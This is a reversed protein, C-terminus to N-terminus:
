PITRYKMEFDATHGSVTTKINIQTVADEPKHEWTHVDGPRLTKYTTSGDSSVQLPKRGLNQVLYFVINDGAVAPFDAGAFVATDSIVPETKGVATPNTDVRRRNEDDTGTVNQSADTGDTKDPVVKVVVDDGDSGQGLRAGM